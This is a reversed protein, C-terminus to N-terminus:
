SHPSSKVHTSKSSDPKILNNVGGYGLAEQQNLSGSRRLNTNGHGKCTTKKTYIYSLSIPSISIDLNHLFFGPVVKYLRRDRVPVPLRFDAITVSIIGSLISCNRSAMM